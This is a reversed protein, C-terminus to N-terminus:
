IEVDESYDVNYYHYGFMQYFDEWYGEIDGLEKINETTVRDWVADIREQVKDQLEWDDLRFYGEADTEKTVFKDAFLLYM